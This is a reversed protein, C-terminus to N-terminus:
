FTEGSDTAVIHMTAGVLPTSGILISLGILAVFVVASQRVNIVVQTTSVSTIRWDIPSASAANIVLAEVVPVAAFATPFTFTANGSGDTVVTAAATHRGSVSVPKVLWRTGNSQVRKFQGPLITITVVNVGNETFPTAGTSSWVVNALSTNTLDHTRGSVTTPDPLSEAATNTEITQADTDQLPM